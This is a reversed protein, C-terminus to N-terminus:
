VSLSGSCPDLETRFQRAEDDMRGASYPTTTGPAPKPEEDDSDSESELGAKIADAVMDASPSTKTPAPGVLARGRRRDRIGLPVSGRAVAVKPAARVETRLDSVERRLAGLVENTRALARALDPCQGDDM